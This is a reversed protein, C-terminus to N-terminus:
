VRLCGYLNHLVCASATMGTVDMHCSDESARMVGVERPSWVRPRTHDCCLSLIRVGKGSPWTASVDLWRHRETHRHPTRNQLLLM